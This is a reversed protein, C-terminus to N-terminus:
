VRVLQLAPSKQTVTKGMLVPTLKAAGPPLLDEGTVLRRAAVPSAALPGATRPRNQALTVLVIGALLVVGGVGTWLTPVGQQGAAWGIVSGLMPELLLAVSVVLPSVYKLSLIALSHGLIGSIFGSLFALLAFESDHVWGFWGNAGVGGPNVGGEIVLSALSATMAATVTVPFAYLWLPTWRRLSAGVWLYAAMAVAGLFAASDGALSPDPGVTAASSSVGWGLEEPVVMLAAGGLALVTGGLEVWTLSRSPLFQLCARRAKSLGTLRTDPAAQPQTHLQQDTGANGERFCAAICGGLGVCVLGVVPHATVFLLSRTLTTHQVSWSWSAFHAALIAGTACLLPLSRWWRPWLAAAGGPGLKSRLDSSIQRLGACGLSLGSYLGVSCM